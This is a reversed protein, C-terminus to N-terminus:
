RQFTGGVDQGYKLWARESCDALMWFFPAEPAGTLDYSNRVFRNHRSTYFTIDARAANMPLLGSGGAAVINDHAYFNELVLPGYRGNKTVPTAQRAMIQQPRANHRVTNAYVEVNSSADVVIGHKGNRETINRRIVADYSIEHFIGNDANDSATNGDYLVAKNDTDTWLGAGHNHHAFNGRVTLDRSWSFKAGGAEWNSDYGAYNNYALENETVAFRESDYVALGQQGNRNLRCHSITVNTSSTFNLGTGHNLRITLDDVVWDGVGDGWVAGRQAPSAFKEVVFHRLTVARQGNGRIALPTTALEVMHGRPDDGVYVAGAAYDNFFSGPGVAGVSAAHRLPAGDFFLDEPYVCRPANPQCVPTGGAASRPNAPMQVFAVWRGDQQSFSSLVQAGSLIADDQGVVTDDSKPVIPATLRHVGKLLEFTTGPPNADIAAQISQGPGLPVAPPSPPFTAAVALGAVWLTASSLVPARVLATRRSQVQADNM